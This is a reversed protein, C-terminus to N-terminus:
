ITASKWNVHISRSKVYLEKLVAPDVQIKLRSVLNVTDFQINLDTEATLMKLLLQENPVFIEHIDTLKLYYAAIIAPFKEKLFSSLYNVFYLEPKLINMSLLLSYADLFSSRKKKMELDVTNEIEISVTHYSEINKVICFNAFIIKSCFIANKFTEKTNRQGAITKLLLVRGSTSKPSM